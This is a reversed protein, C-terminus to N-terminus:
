RAYTEKTIKDHADGEFDVSEILKFGEDLPSIDLKQDSLYRRNWRYIILRDIKDLYVRLPPSEIFASSGRPASELPCPVAIVSSDSESFLEESFDSIYLIGDAVSECVDDILRKDRSQRRRNFLMGGNDDICIFVKM